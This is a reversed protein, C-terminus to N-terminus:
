IKMKKEKESQNNIININNNNETEEDNEELKDNTNERQESTEEFIEKNFERQENIEELKDNNNETQIDFANIDIEKQKNEQFIIIYKRQNEEILQNAKIKEITLTELLNIIKKDNEVEIIDIIKFEKEEPFDIINNNRTFVINEQIKERKRFEKLITSDLYKSEKYFNNNLRLEVKKEKIPKKSQLFVYNEENAIELVLKKEEEQPSIIKGENKIDIFIDSKLIEINANERKELIARIEKM